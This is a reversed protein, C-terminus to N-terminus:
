AEHRLPCCDRWPDNLRVQRRFASYVSELVDVTERNPHELRTRARLGQDAMNRDYGIAMLRKVATKHKM